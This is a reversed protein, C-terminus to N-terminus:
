FPASTAAQAVRFRTSHSEWVVKDPVVQAGRLRMWKLAPQVAPAVPRASDVVAAAPLRASPRAELRDPAVDKLPAGTPQAAGAVREQVPGGTQASPASDQRSM